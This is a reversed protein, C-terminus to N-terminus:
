AALPGLTGSRGFVTPPVNPHRAIKHAVIVVPALPELERPLLLLTVFVLKPERVVLSPVRPGNRGIEGFVIRRALERMVPGLTPLPIRARLVETKPPSKIEPASRLEVGVLFRASPGSRGIRGCAILLALVLLVIKNPVRRDQALSGEMNPPSKRVVLQPKLPQDVLPM